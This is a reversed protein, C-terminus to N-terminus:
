TSDGGFHEINAPSKCCYSAIIADSDHSGDCTRIMIGLPSKGLRVM